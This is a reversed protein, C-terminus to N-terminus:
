PLVEVPIDTFAALRTDNTLFRDCRTEVAAALHLCDGLKFNYWARITTARDFIASDFPVKEVNPQAFLLDFDSIRRLDGLRIPLMQCELRVLDSTVVVDGANWLATLRATARAKFSPAGELYYILIVSDCYIRM